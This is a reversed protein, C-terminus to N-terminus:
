QLPAATWLGSLSAADHHLLPLGGRRTYSSQQTHHPSCREMHKFVLEHCLQSQFLVPKFHAPGSMCLNKVTSYIYKRKRIM